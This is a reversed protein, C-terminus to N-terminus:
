YGVYVYQGISLGSYLYSHYDTDWGTSLSLYNGSYDFAVVSHNSNVSPFNILEIQLLEGDNLHNKMGSYTISTVKGLSSPTCNRGSCFSSIGPKINSWQTGTATIENSSSISNTDMAYYLEMFITSNGVSSSLPSDGTSRFYLMINTAATPSCHQTVRQRTGNPRTAYLNSFDSTTVLSFSQVSHTSTTNQISETNENTVGCEEKRQNAENLFDHYFAAVDQVTFEKVSDLPSFKGNALKTCYAFNGFFYLKDDSPIFSAVKDAALGEYAPKGSFSYCYTVLENNINNVQIYGTTEGDTSLKFVYGICVDNYDYLAMSSFIDTTENWICNPLSDEVIHRIEERAFSTAASETAFSADTINSAPQSASAPAFGALATVLLVCLLLAVGKKIKM